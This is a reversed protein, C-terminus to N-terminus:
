CGFVVRRSQRFNYNKYITLQPFHLLTIFLVHRLATCNRFFKINAHLVRDTHKNNEELLLNEDDYHFAYLKNEIQNKNQKNSAM